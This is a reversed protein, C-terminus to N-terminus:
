PNSMQFLLMTSTRKSSPLLDISGSPAFRTQRRRVVLARTYSDLHLNTKACNFSLKRQVYWEIASRYTSKNFHDNGKTKWALATGSQEASGRQWSSPIREDNASLFVVDSLHDVRLGYNGDSTLKLYPEKLILVTGEVLIDEAGGDAGGEQHYLQVLLVDGKEDEVIAMVATMRDQPTVSRVLMYTGRHHTELLLDNIMTKKLDSLPVVCPPYPSPVFSSRIFSTQQGRATAQMYSAMLKRQFELIVQARPTRAPRQGKRTQANRLTLQLDHIYQVYQPTDSVDHADM